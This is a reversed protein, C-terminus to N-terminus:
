ENRFHHLIKIKGILLNTSPNKRIEFEPIIMKEREIIQGMFRTLQNLSFDTFNIDASIRKLNTSSEFVEFKTTSIKDLGLNLSRLIMGLTNQLEGESALISPGLVNTEINKLRRIKSSIESTLVQIDRKLKLSKHVGINQWGLFLIILLPLSVILISLIYNIKKQSEDDLGSILDLLQQYNSSSKFNEVQSFVYEDVKKFVSNGNDM